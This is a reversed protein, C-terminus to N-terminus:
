ISVSLLSRVEAKNAFHSLLCKALCNCEGSIGALSRPFATGTEEWQKSRLWAQCSVCARLLGAPWRMGSCSQMGRWWWHLCKEARLSSSYLLLLDKTERGPLLVAMGAACLCCKLAHWIIDPKAPGGQWCIHEELIGWSNFWQQLVWTRHSGNKKIAVPKLLSSPSKM